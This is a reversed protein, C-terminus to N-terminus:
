KSYIFDGKSCDILWKYKNLYLDSKNFWLYINKKMNIFNFFSALPYLRKSFYINKITYAHENKNSYNMLNIEEVDWYCSFKSLLQKVNVRYRKVIGHSSYIAELKDPGCLYEDTYKASKIFYFSKETYSQNKELNRIKIPIFNWTIKQFDDIWKLPYTFVDKAFKNTESAYLYEYKYELNHILCEKFPEIKSSELVNQEIMSCFLFFLMFHNKSYDM